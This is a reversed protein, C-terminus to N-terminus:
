QKHEIKLLAEKCIEALYNDPSNLNSRLLAVSSADGIAGLAFAAERRTDDSEKKNVLVKTLVGLADRFAQFTKTVPEGVPMEKYKEPLFNQPTVVISKGTRIMQALLGISRAASRRLFEKDDTPKKKLVGVLWDMAFFDGSGLAIAAASRVEMVKDELMLKVLFSTDIGTRDKRLAYAAERRVFADKDALLPRLYVAVDSEPLLEISSAATARVIPDPDNLLPVALRSAVENRLNKIQFLANRKLETNGSALDAQISELSQAPSNGVFCVFTVFFLVSFLATCHDCYSRGKGKEGRRGM